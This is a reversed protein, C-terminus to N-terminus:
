YIIYPAWKELQEGTVLHIQKLDDPSQFNGHQRRYQIVANAVQYKIYPHTKLEELSITNINIKKINAPDCQLKPNIQQFVSDTIGYVESLQETSYFGGLKARFSIIRSALKAGIGPLEIFDSTDATNIDIMSGAPNNNPIFPKPPENNVPKKQLRDNAIRVYPILRNCDATKLGYIKTLDKPQYFRGGKALYNQITQVTKNAIGLRNWETAPLTNPDFYFTEAKEPKPQIAGTQTAYAAEILGEGDPGKESERLQAIENKFREFGKEDFHEEPTFIAPLFWVAILAVLLLLIGNREKKSFNFYAKLRNANM